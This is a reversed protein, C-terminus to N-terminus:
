EEEKENCSQAERSIEFMKRYLAELSRAQRSNLGETLRQLIQDERESHLVSISEERKLQAVKEVVQMRQLFLEALQDDIGDIQTRLADLKEHM